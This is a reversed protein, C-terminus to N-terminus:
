ADLMMLLANLLSALTPHIFVGEQLATYLLKRMMAAQIIAMLEGCELCVMACGPIQCTESDVIAQMFGRTEGTELARAVQNIPLKVM